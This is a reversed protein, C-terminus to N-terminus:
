SAAQAETQAAEVIDNYRGDFEKSVDIKQPIEGNDVYLDALNQQPDVLDGPLSLFSTRGAAALLRQGQELPLKYESVYLAQAWADPQQNAFATARVLRQVYDGIAASIGPDALAKESAILFNGRDTVEDPQLAVAFGPNQAIFSSTLPEYLVGIAASGGQLAATIQTIPLNVTTIDSLKLGASQLGQLVASEASTGVQYAVKRGKLDAWSSIGSDSAAVLRTASHEPAWGAVGVIKQQAAQAFILPTSAVFGVDIADGQFAQLMPPGGVFASYEVKYPLDQDQGSVSLSQELYGLQDGVKLTLGAPISTPVTPPTSTASGADASTQSSASSCATALSAATLAVAAAILWPRRGPRRGVRRNPRPRRLVRAIHM